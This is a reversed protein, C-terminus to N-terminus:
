GYFNGRKKNLFKRFLIYFIIIFITTLFIIGNYSTYFNTIKITKNSFAPVLDMNFFTFKNILFYTYIAAFIGQLIKGIIYPKISIDSTSTISYVQLLVSIGGFGLLFACLIVNFSVNKSPISCLQKLGNTLEIIGTCFARSFNQTLGLHSFIPNIINAVVDLTRSQELISLIVSFLVIFGGIMIITNFSNKISLSLINGLNSLNLQVKSNHKYRNNCNSSHYNYKWFRFLIGVTICALIHTIFLLFGTRTDGILGHM